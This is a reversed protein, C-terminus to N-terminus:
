AESAERREATQNVLKVVREARMMSISTVLTIHGRRSGSAEPPGEVSPRAVFQLRQLIRRTKDDSCYDSLVRRQVLVLGNLFVWSSFWLLAFVLTGQRSWMRLGLWRLLSPGGAGRGGDGGGPLPGTSFM